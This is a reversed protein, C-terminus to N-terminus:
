EEKREKLEIVVEDTVEIVPSLIVRRRVAVLEDSVTPHQNIM